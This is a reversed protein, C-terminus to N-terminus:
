EALWQVVNDTAYINKIDLVNNCFESSSKVLGRRHAVM